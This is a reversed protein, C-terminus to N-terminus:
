TPYVIYKHTSVPTFMNQTVVGSLSMYTLVLGDREAAEKHKEIFELAQQESL